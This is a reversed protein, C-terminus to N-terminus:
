NKMIGVVGVAKPGIHVGLSPSVATINVDSDVIRSLSYKLDLARDEADAHFITLRDLRGHFQSYDLFKNYARKYTRQRALVDIKGWQLKLIPKIQLLGGVSASLNSVRGGRRLFELTDLLVYLFTRQSIAEMAVIADQISGGKSIVNAAVLVQYGLGMTISQSDHITVNRNAAQAGLAIHESTKSISSSLVICLIQDKAPIQEFLRQSYNAPAPSTSIQNRLNGLKDYIADRSIDLTDRFEDGNVSVISPIVHIGLQQLAAQPLDCTSDTVIHIAMSIQAAEWNCKCVLHLHQQSVTINKRLVICLHLNSLVLFVGLPM